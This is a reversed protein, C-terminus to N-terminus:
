GLAALLKEGAALSNRFWFDKLAASVGRRCASGGDVAM